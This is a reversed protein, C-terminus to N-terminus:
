REANSCNRQYEFPEPQRLYSMTISKQPLNNSEKTDIPENQDLSNNLNSSQNNESSNDNKDEDGSTLNNHQPRQIIQKNM